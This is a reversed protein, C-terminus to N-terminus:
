HNRRTPTTRREQRPPAAATTERQPPRPSSAASLREIQADLEAVRATEGADQAFWRERRLQGLANQRSSQPPIPVQTM